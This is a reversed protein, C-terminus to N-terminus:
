APNQIEDAAPVSAAASASASAARPLRMTLTVRNNASALSVSGGHAQAIARVIPLGLGLGAGGSRVRRGGGFPEFMTRAVGEPLPRATANSVSLVVGEEQGEVRVVVPEEAVGYAVANGVLNSAAQALRHADWVGLLNGETALEIVRDPHATRLEEVVQRVVEALDGPARTIPIGGQQIRAVDLLDGIMQAMRAAGRVIREATARRVAPVDEARALLSAALTIANLPNRLDHGLVAMMRERDESAQKLRTVDVNMGLWVRRAGAEGEVPVARVHTWIWRGDAVRVRYESEMMSGDDVASSWAEVLRPLDDPHIAEQFGWGLYEELTQGTLERWSPSDVHRRGHDESLWVAMASASVLVRFRAESQKLAAEVRREDTVDRAVCVVLSAAQGDEGAIPSLSFEFHRMGVTTPVDAEGRAPQGTALVRGIDNELGRLDGHPLALECFSRGVTEAPARGFLRAVHPSPLVFRAHRDLVMVVDISTELIGSLIRLERAADAQAREATELARRERERLSAEVILTTVRSAAARFVVQDEETFEYATRSGMHAVGVLEGDAVLPVGYLTRLRERRIDESVVLPDNAADRLALARRTAAITGAFGEGIALSFGVVSERELGISARATLRGNSALLITVEDVAPSAEVLVAVLRSLLDDLSRAGATELTLRELARLARDSAHVYETVSTRVADDIAEHMAAREDTTVADSEGIVELLVRRLVAYEAVLDGLQFGETLRQLAHTRPLVRGTTGPTGTRAQSGIRALLRPLHDILQERTLGRAIPKQRMEAVWRAVIEDHHRDIIDGVM